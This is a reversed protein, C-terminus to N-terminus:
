GCIEGMLVRLRKDMRKVVRPDLLEIHALPTKATMTRRLYRLHQRRNKHTVGCALCFADVQEIPVGRWWNLGYIHVARQQSMGARKAIVGLPIPRGNERAVLVCLLPPLLNAEALLSSTM